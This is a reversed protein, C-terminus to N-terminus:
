PVCECVFVQQNTCTFDDWTGPATGGVDYALDFCNRGDDRLTDTAGQYEPGDLQPALPPGMAPRTGDVWEIYSAGNPGAWRLGIWAWGNGPLGLLATHVALALGEGSTEFVALQQGDGQCLTFAGKWSQGSGFRYRSPAGPVVEYTTPCRAPGADAAGARADVGADAAGEGADVNGAGPTPEFSCAALLVLSTLCCSRPV